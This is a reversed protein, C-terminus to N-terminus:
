ASINSTGAEPLRDPDVYDALYELAAEPTIGFASSVMRPDMTNVLTALRTVRLRNLSIGPELLHCIYAPSSPRKTAKTGRTVLVHPNVTGIQRRHELCRELAAWTQHDMPTPHPRKGLALTRNNQDINGLALHRVEHNTAAHLLGLLGALAEHPHVDIDNVWRRLLQQQRTVPLTAGSFGRPQRLGIGQCPDVLVLKHSRAWRFFPRLGTMTRQRNGSNLSALFEEIDTRTTLAWDSKSRLSLFRSLDRVISLSSEITSDSKPRIRLRRARTKEDLVATAYDAVAPRLPIPVAAIRRRRRGAALVDAQNTPVALSHASFFAELARALSGMSRGPSRSRELLAQPHSSHGDTLLGALKSILAAARPPSYCHAVHDVFGDLWPPSEGLEAALSEGRVFARRPNRQWCNSCADKILRTTM